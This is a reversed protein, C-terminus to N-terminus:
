GYNEGELHSKTFTIESELILDTTIIIDDKEIDKKNYKALTINKEEKVLKDKTYYDMSEMLNIELNDWDIELKAPIFLLNGSAEVLNTKNSSPLNTLHLYKHQNDAAFLTIKENTKFNTNELDKCIMILSHIYNTLDKFNIEKFYNILYHNNNENFVIEELEQYYHNFDFSTIISEIPPYNNDIIYNCIPKYISNYLILNAQTNPPLSKFENLLNPQEIKATELNEISNNTIQHGTIIKTASLINTISNFKDEIKQKNENLFDEIKTPAVNTRLFSKLEEDINHIKSGKLNFNKEANIKSKVFDIQKKLININYQYVSNSYINVLNKEDLEEAKIINILTRLYDEIEKISKNEINKLNEILSTNDINSPFDLTVVKKELVKERGYYTTLQQLLEFKLDNEETKLKNKEQKINEKLAKFNMLYNTLERISELYQKKQEEEKKEEKEKEIFNKMNLMEDLSLSVNQYEYIIKPTKTYYDDLKLKINYKKHNEKYWFYKRLFDNLDDKSNSLFIRTLYGFLSDKIDLCLGIENNNQYITPEYKKSYINYTKLIQLAEDIQLM